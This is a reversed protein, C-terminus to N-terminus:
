ENEIEVKRFKTFSIEEYIKVLYFTYAIIAVSFGILFTGISRFGTGAIVSIGAIFAGLGALLVLMIKKHIETVVDLHTIGYGAYSDKKFEENTM